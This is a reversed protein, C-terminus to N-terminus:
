VGDVVLNTLRGISEIYVEVEDGAKLPGIGSPTGTLIVDGPLLTMIDAVFNLIQEPGFILDSTSSSQKLEGNVRCQIALNHIDVGRVLVPGLPCFTDFGKARTWQGDKKQLDRATVDNACTYGFLADHDDIGPGVQKGIVLALEAEFDVRSSSRPLRIPKGPQLLTTSPKIFIKPEEPLGEAMEQAHARYNLGVCVIKSPEAPCLWEVSHADITEGTPKCEALWPAASLVELKDGAKRGWTPKGGHRTFRVFEEIM